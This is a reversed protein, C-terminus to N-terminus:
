NKLKKKLHINNKDSKQRKKSIYDEKNLPKM